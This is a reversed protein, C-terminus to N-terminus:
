LRGPFRNLEELSLDAVVVGQDQDFRLDEDPVAVMKNNRDLIVLGKLEGADVNTMHNFRGVIRGDRDEVPAGAIDRDPDRLSGLHILATTDPYVVVSGSAAPAANIVLDPANTEIAVDPPSEVVTTPPSTSAVPPASSLEAAYDSKTGTYNSAQEQFLQNRAQYDQLEKNYDDVQQKYRTQAQDFQMQAQSYASENAAQNSAAMLDAQGIMASQGLEAQNLTMTEAMETGSPQSLSQAYAGAGLASMLALSAVGGLVKTSLTM